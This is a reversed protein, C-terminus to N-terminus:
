FSRLAFFFQSAPLRRRHSSAARELLVRLAPGSGSVLRAVLDAMRSPSALLLPFCHKGCFILLPCGASRGRGRESTGADNNDFFTSLNLQSNFRCTRQYAAKESGKEGAERSGRDKFRFSRTLSFVQRPLGTNELSLLWVAWRACDKLRM